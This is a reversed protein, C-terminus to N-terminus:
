THTLSVKTGPMGPPGSPGARGKIGFSPVGPAGPLGKIGSSPNFINMNVEDFHKIAIMWMVVCGFVSRQGGPFRTSGPCFIRQRRKRGESWSIGPSWSNRDCRLEAVFVPILNHLKYIIQHPQTGTVESGPDQVGSSRSVLLGPCEGQKHTQRLGCRLM